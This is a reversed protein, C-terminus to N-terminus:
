NSVSYVIDIFPKFLEPVFIDGYGPLLILHADSYQRKNWRVQAYVLM